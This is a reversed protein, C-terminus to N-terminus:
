RHRLSALDSSGDLPWGRGDGFNSHHGTLRFDRGLNHRNNMTKTSDLHQAEDKPL